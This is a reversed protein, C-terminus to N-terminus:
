LRKGVQMCAQAPFPKEASSDYISRFYSRGTSQRAPGPVDMGVCRISEM